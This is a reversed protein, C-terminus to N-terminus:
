EKEFAIQKNCIKLAAPRHTIIVVTRDTLEQLKLLLKKETEEDLASTSEDLMLIPRESFIARAIAIRQMQGESLGAGHEGLPTDLGLPLERVFADACSAELAKWLRDDDRQEDPDAFSLIERITGSMLLNEQPVYAFLARWEPTLPKQNGSNDLVYVEGSSLRYLGMLINMTTSKGCGSEGSFAIYEGKEIQLNMNKLVKEGEGEDYSFSANKLGIAAFSKQYYDRVESPKLVTGTYDSDLKEIEMMREASALMNFFQPVAHTVEAMPHDIQAVLRLIAMMTGYTMIGNFIRLGCILVAILYGVRVFGYIGTACVSVFRIRRMRADIIQDLKIEAQEKMAKEKTYTRIVALSNLSEQFFGYVEGECRQVEKHYNKLKVRLFLSVALMGVGLPILFWIVKPILLFLSIFACVFQTLLGATSPIITTVASAIVSSDSNIRTMWDGSHVEQIDKYSRTLLESYSHLRYAKTLKATPKDTFYIVGWNLFIAMIVLLCLKIGCTKFEVWDQAVACDVIDRLLFAFLIGEAGKLIKVFLLVILSGRACSTQNYIWKLTNWDVRQKKM